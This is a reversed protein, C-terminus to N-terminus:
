IIIKHLEFIFREIQYQTIGSFVWGWGGGM